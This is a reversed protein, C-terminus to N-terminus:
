DAEETRRRELEVISKYFADFAEEKSIQLVAALSEALDSVSISRYYTRPLDPLKRFLYRDLEDKAIRRKYHYTTEVALNEKLHAFEQNSLARGRLDTFYRNCRKCYYRKGGKRIVGRRDWCHPCEPLRREEESLLPLGEWGSDVKCWKGFRQEFTRCYADMFHVEYLLRRKEVVLRLELLDGHRKLYYRRLHQVLSVPLPDEKRGIRKLFKKVERRTRFHSVSPPGSVLLVRYWM